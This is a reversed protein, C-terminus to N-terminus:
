AILHSYIRVRQGGVGARPMRLPDSGLPCATSRDPPTALVPSKIEEIDGLVQHPVAAELWAYSLYPRHQDWFTCM